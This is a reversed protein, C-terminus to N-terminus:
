MNGMVNIKWLEQGLNNKVLANYSKMKRISEVRQKFEPTKQWNELTEKDSFIIERFTNGITRRRFETLKKPEITDKVIGPSEGDLIGISIELLLRPSLAVMINNDKSLIASDTLPFTDIETRYLTWHSLAINALPNYFDPDSLSEKLAILNEFKEIGLKGNMEFISNLIAHGRLFQLYIFISLFAKEDRSAIFQRKIVSCLVQYAPTKEIGTLINEFDLTLPYDSEVAQSVFNEYEQPKNRKYFDKLGQLTIKAVGLGKEYHVQEVPATYITNSKVNLVNTVQERATLKNAANQMVAEYYDPNWHATWFCPNYHTRKTITHKM